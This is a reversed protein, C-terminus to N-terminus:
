CNKVYSLEQVGYMECGVLILQDFLSREGNNSRLFSLDSHFGNKMQGNERWSQQIQKLTVWFAKSVQGDEM